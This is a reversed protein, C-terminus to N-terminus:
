RKTPQLRHNPDLWVVFFIDGVLAGHIRTKSNIAFQWAKDHLQDNEFPFRKETIRPRKWDIPHSHLARSGQFDGINIDCVHKLRKFFDGIHGDEAPILIFKDNDLDLYKFSFKLGSPNVKIKEPIKGKHIKKTPKIKSM